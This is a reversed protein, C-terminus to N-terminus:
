RGGRGGRGGRGRPFGGTQSTRLAVSEKVPEPAPEAKPAYSQRCFLTVAVRSKHLFVRCARVQDGYDIDLKTLRKVAQLEKTRADQLDRAYRLQTEVLMKAADVAVRQGTVVITADTGRGGPQVFGLVFSMFSTEVGGPACPLLPFCRVCAAFAVQELTMNLVGSAAQIDHINEGGTGVIAAVESGKVPIRAIQELCSVVRSFVRSPVRSDRQRGVCVQFEMIERARYVADPDNGRIRVM